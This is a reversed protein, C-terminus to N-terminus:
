IIASLFKTNGCCRCYARFKATGNLPYRDPLLKYIIWPGYKHGVENKLEGMEDEMNLYDKM